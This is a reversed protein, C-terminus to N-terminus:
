NGVQIKRQLQCMEIVNLALVEDVLKKVKDSPTDLFNENVEEAETMPTPALQVGMKKLQEAAWSSDTIVPAASLARRSVSKRGVSALSRFVVTQM